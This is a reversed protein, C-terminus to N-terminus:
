LRTTHGDGLWRNAWRELEALAPELEHGMESLSYEVRLPPGSIVRRQVMGRRELEKMRASLLRDSLEPVAQAIESFRLAGDMLVRLIAGTWRRGVLEVAEHYLPCCPASRPEGGEATATRDAKSETDEPAGM